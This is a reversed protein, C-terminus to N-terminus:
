GGERVKIGLTTYWQGESSVFLWWVYMDMEWPFQVIAEDGDNVNADNDVVRFDSGFTWQVYGNGNLPILIENPNVVMVEVDNILSETYSLTTVFNVNYHLGKPPKNGTGKATFLEGDTIETDVEEPKTFSCGNFAFLGTLILILLGLLLTSQISKKMKNEM